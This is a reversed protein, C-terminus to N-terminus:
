PAGSVLQFSCVRVKDLTTTYSTLGVTIHYETVSGPDLPNSTFAVDGAFIAWLKTSMAFIAIVLAAANCILPIMFPKELFGLKGM